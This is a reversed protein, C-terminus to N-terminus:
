NGNKNKGGKSLTAKSKEKLGKWFTNFNKAFTAKKDTKKFTKCQLQKAFILKLGHKKFKKCSM